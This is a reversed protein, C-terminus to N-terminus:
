QCYLLELQRFVAAFEDNGQIPILDEIQALFERMAADPLGHLRASILVSALGILSKRHPLFFSDAVAIETLTSCTLKTSSSIQAPFLDWLMRSYALATPPSIHWQLTMLIERETVAIDEETYFGRSMDVLADLGIKRPYPELVKVALYLSTMSFLQFDDRTIEQANPNSSEKAVYRDLIDFCIAVIERDMGFSDIVMCSWDFMQQRWFRFSECKQPTMRHFTTNMKDVDRVDKLSTTSVSKNMVSSSTTTSATSASENTPATFRQDTVVKAFEEVMSVLDNTSSTVM